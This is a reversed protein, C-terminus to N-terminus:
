QVAAEPALLGAAKGKEGLVALLAAAYKQNGVDNAWANGLAAQFMMVVNGQAAELKAQTEPDNQIADIIADSLGAFDPDHGALRGVLGEFVTVANGPAGAFSGNGAPAIPAAALAAQRVATSPVVTPAPAAMKQAVIEGFSSAFAKMVGGWGEEEQNRGGLGLEIVSTVMQLSNRMTSTTAESMAGLMKASEAGQNALQRQLEAREKAEEMRRSEERELRAAERAEAVRRDEARQAMLGTVIPGFAATIKVILDSPDSAVAPRQGAVVLSKVIERMEALHQEHRRNAEDQTRRMAELEASRRSEDLKRQEAHLQALLGEPTGAPFPPQSGTNPLPPRPVGDSGGSTAGLADPKPYVLVKPGIWGPADIRAWVIRNSQIPEGALAPLRLMASTRGISRDRSHMVYLYYIGGSGTGGFISPIWSDANSIMEVTVADFTALTEIRGNPSDGRGIKIRWDDGDTAARQALLAINEEMSRGLIDNM